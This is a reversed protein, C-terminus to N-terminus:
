TDAQASLRASSAALSVLMASPNLRRLHRLPQRAAGCLACFTRRYPRPLRRTGLSGPLRGLKAEPFGFPLARLTREAEFQTVAEILGIVTERSIANVPPNVIRIVGIEGHREFRVTPSTEPDTSPQTSM